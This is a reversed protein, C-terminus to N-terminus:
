RVQRKYVDEFGMTGAAKATEPKVAAFGSLVLVFAAAFSLIRKGKKVGSRRRYVAFDARKGQNYWIERSM